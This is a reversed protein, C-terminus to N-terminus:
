IRKGYIEYRSIADKYVRILRANRTITVLATGTILIGLLIFFLFTLGTIVMCADRVSQMSPPRTPDNDDNDPDSDITPDFHSKIRKIIMLPIAILLMTKHLAVPLIALATCLTNIFPFSMRTNSRTQKTSKKLTHREWHILLIRISRVFFFIPM